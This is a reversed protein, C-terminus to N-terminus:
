HRSDNYNAIIVEGYANTNLQILKKTMNSFLTIITGQYEREYAFLGNINDLLPSGFKPPILKYLKKLFSFFWIINHPYINTSGANIKKKHMFIHGM